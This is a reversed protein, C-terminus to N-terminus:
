GEQEYFTHFGSGVEHTEGNPLVITATTNCPIIVNLTFTGNKRKWDSVIKGYISHFSCKAWALSADPRPKILIHKFSDQTKNIGNIHRYIWDSVCGFAYHNYSIKLPNDNEDYGVWSEWITTGGRKVEYLWSPCKEQYLLKYAM